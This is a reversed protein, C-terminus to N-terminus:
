TSVRPVRAAPQRFRPAHGGTSSRSGSAAVMVRIGSAPNKAKWEALAKVAEGKLELWAEPEVHKVTDARFGDIGYERVWDTLWKVLYGRVSTDPLDM